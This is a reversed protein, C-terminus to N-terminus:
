ASCGPIDLHFTKEAAALPWVLAFFTIAAAMLGLVRKGIMGDEEKPLSFTAERAPSVVVRNWGM